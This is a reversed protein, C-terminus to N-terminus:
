AQRDVEHDVKEDIHTILSLQHHCARLNKRVEVDILSDDRFLVFAHLTQITSNQDKEKWL